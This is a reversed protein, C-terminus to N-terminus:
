LSNTKAKGREERGVAIAMRYRSLRMGVHTSMGAEVDLHWGCKRCFSHKAM